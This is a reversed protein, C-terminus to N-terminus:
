KGDPVEALRKIVADAYAVAGSAASEPSCHAAAFGALAQATLWTRIDM